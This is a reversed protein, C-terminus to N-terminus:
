RVRQNKYHEVTRAGGGRGTGGGIFHGGAEWKMKNSSAWWVTGLDGVCFLCVSLVFICAVAIILLEVNTNPANRSVVLLQCGSSRFPPSM